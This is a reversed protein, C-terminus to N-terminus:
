GFLERSARREHGHDEVLELTRLKSLYTSFTGSKASIEARAGLEENALGEPYADALASLMRNAGGGLERLWYELLEQGEPLPEYTGLAALGEDTLVRRDGNDEIWGESRGRSLYTSFTGSKSSLGARVGLQRNTLGQPRQALAIMMRRLGGGITVAAGNSPKPDRHAISRGTTVITRHQPLARQGETVIPMARRPTGISAGPKAGATEHCKSAYTHLIGRINGIALRGEDFIKDSANQWQEGIARVAEDFAQRDFMPVEVREPAAAAPKARLEKELEAIRKRLVQPDNAAQEEILAAMKARISELDVVARAKPDARREGPKPTAGSDFTEIAGVKIRRFIGEATPWGPSWVWATGVPLSPLSELLTKREAVSGHVNIWSMIADLDQPAITKLTFLIEIQTLVNKNLSAARQTVMLVGIGRQGGRKVLDECAGLMRAQDPFPKQPAVDDAEDIVVMVPSTQTEKLSYFTEFFDALFRAREGKKLSAVHLLMNPREEVAIRAVLEGSKPSIPVDGRAGGFITVALGPSKGDASSCIGWQDGKPDVLIVQQGAKILQECIKRTLYSKGVRRKALVAGAQTVFELPLTLDPSIRLTQTM